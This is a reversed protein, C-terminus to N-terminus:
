APLRNRQRFFRILPEVYSEGTMVPIRDVRARRLAEGVAERRQAADAAYAARVARSRTDLWYTRGTEPDTLAALGLAPLEAERPDMLHVAVVDHRRALTRLPREFGTDMFDSLLLVVSRRRLVHLLHDFGAALRTGRAQPAFAFLDRLLRLVHRRGKKPPVFLEVRDSVLLMGVKDNNKIASFGVIACIEAALERKFAHQTGFDESGSVDVVLMVTQEREEEFVKVYTEEMRASVNWDIARIDDGIQYPRVESFAIGRGKFATHYEGGFVNNVLGKTRIELRRIKQFLAKLDM